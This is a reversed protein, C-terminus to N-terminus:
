DFAGHCVACFTTYDITPEVELGTGAGYGTGSGDLIYSGSTTEADHPSHCSECNVTNNANYSQGYVTGLAYQTGDADELPHTGGPVWHCGTCIYPNATYATVDTVTSVVTVAASGSTEVLLGTNGDGTVVNGQALRHCSQCIMTTANNGFLSPLGSGVWNTPAANSAGSGAYRILGAGGTTRGNTWTEAATDGTFHSALGNATYTGAPTYTGPNNTHCLVCPETPPTPNPPYPSGMAYDRNHALAGSGSVGHCAGVGAGVDGGACTVGGVTNGATVYTGGTPHHTFGAGANHCAQCVDNYTGDDYNLLIPSLPETEAAAGQMHVGHCSTCVIGSAGTGTTSSSTAPQWTLDATVSANAAAVDDNPHSFATGGPNWYYSGASGANSGQHCYECFANNAGGANDAVIGLYATGNDPTADNEDWHVNHCSICDVGGTGAAGQGSLQLGSDWTADTWQSGGAEGTNAEFETGWGAVFPSNPSAAIGSVDGTFVPGAPHTSVANAYGTTATNNNVRNTHCDECLDDLTEQLFPRFNNATNHVDHCSLCEINTAGSPADGTTYPLGSGAVNEDSDAAQLVNIDLGHGAMVTYNAELNTNDVIGEDHCTMCLPGFFGGATGQPLNPFLRAGKAGHPIHCASCAGYDAFAALGAYPNTGDTMDHRSGQIGAFAAPAWASGVVAAALTAILLKKM